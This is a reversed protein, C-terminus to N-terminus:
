GDGLFARMRAAVQEAEQMHLHHGGAMEVRQLGGVAGCRATLQEQDIPIGDTARLFLVPCAIRRLFAMVQAETLRASSTGRLRRDYTWTVGGPVERTSRTVLAKANAVSLNPVVSAWAQIAKDLSPLPRPQKALGRTEELIHHALREPMADAEVSMPGIADLLVLHTYRQPFTGALVCGVAAGLSHGVFAFRQWGLADVVAAVDVAYDIFHYAADASRHQSGGHGPLDVAVIRWEPLLPALRDFSNANDLWGHVALLPRGEPPGWVKAALTLGHAPLTIEEPMM